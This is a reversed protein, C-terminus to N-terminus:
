DIETSFNEKMFKIIEESSVHQKKPLKGAKIKKRKVRVGPRIFTVAVNLGRIGIDRQYEIGPIEIYEKIGFAFGNQYIQDESLTNGIAGLLRKLLALAKEGRLTIRTGVELGPRVNFDPIRKATTIKQAGKGALIELLKKSKELDPGVAGCNLVVKEIKIKRMPNEKKHIIEKIIDQRKPFQGYSFESSSAVYNDSNEINEVVVLKSNQKKM